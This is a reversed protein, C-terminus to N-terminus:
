ASPFFPPRHSFVRVISGQSAEKAPLAVAPPYYRSTSAFIDQASSPDILAFNRLGHGRAVRHEDPPRTISAGPRPRRLSATSVMRGQCDASPEMSKEASPAGALAVARRLRVPDDGGDLLEGRQQRVVGGVVPGQDGVQAAPGVAPKPTGVEEVRQEGELGGGVALVPQLM